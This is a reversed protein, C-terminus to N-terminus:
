AFERRLAAGHQDLRPTERGAASGDSLYPHAPMTVIQEHSNIVARTRLAPHDLLEDVTNVAGYAISADNLARRFEATGLKRTANNIAAELTDRNKVRLVNSTYKEDTSLQGLKLVDHCLRYWERENQISLLTLTGEKDEFAGYPAISPHRLGARSPAGDGSSAHLFPVSMWEAAVDFLSVNLESGIQTRTRLLIAELIAAYATVGAGIDCLSIGIRGLEGPGGSISILGTEAQVLLDYAKMGKVAERNGYGSINCTILQPNKAALAARDFGRRDLAGPSLNQVLVDAASIMRHLLAADNKDTIDLVISEKGPNNWAFYSSDGKAAADYFRAFDGGAREVKIVRAGADIMRSTCLPAAVAQEIAVVLIGDLPKSM